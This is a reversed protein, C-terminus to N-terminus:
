WFEIAARVIRAALDEAAAPLNMRKASTLDGGPVFDAEGNVRTTVLVRGTRVDILRVAAQITMRYEETTTLADRAFRLPQLTFSLLRVELAVDARNEDGVILTGDRQFEAITAQTTLVELSPEDTENMFVPVHVVDMGAPLSSGLRYGVCGVGSLLVGLMPILTYQLIGRMIM